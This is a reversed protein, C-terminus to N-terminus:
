SEQDPIGERQFTGFILALNRFYVFIFCITTNEQFIDKVKKLEQEHIEIM